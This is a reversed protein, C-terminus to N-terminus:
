FFVGAQSKQWSTSNCSFNFCSFQVNYLNFSEFYKTIKRIFLCNNSRIYNIDDELIKNFYSPSKQITYDLWRNYMVQANTYKYQPNEWMLISLFYYEDHCGNLIRHRFRNIYKNESNIIIQADTKNLIWWQSTKYYGRYKSLFNFVSKNNHINKFKKIFENNTYIPYSDESLLIFWENSNDLIAEKLLNISAQVISFDCWKTPEILNKIIYRKYKQNIKSPYKPHIYINTNIFNNFDYLLNEYTLFLLAYSM